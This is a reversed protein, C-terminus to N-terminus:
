PIRCFYLASHDNEAILWDINKGILYYEFFSCEGLVAKVGKLSAEFVRLEKSENEPIFYCAGETSPWWLELFNFDDFDAAAATEHPLKLSLWWARPNGSVFREKARDVIIQAEERALERVDSPPLSLNLLAEDVVQDVTWM